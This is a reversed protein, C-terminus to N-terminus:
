EDSHKRKNRVPQTIAREVSWGLIIRSQLTSCSLRFKDAWDTVCMTKGDYTLMNNSRRNRAQQSWTAWRCNAPNYDGDNDIRDITHKDSPPDGMDAYFGEFTSWAQCVRIGRGGYNRYKSNNPNMCRSKMSCWCFYINTRSKGHVDEFRSDQLCSCSRTHGRRLDAGLVTTENGCDCLCHWRARRSSTDSRELVALMGYRNGTEDIVKGM